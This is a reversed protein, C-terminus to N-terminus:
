DANGVHAGDFLEPGQAEAKELIGQVAKVESPTLPENPLVPEEKGTVPNTRNVPKSGYRCPEYFIDFSM